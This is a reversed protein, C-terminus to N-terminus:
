SVPGLTKGEWLMPQIEFREGDDLPRRGSRMEALLDCAKRGVEISDIVIASIKRAILMERWKPGFSLLSIDGPIRLGMEGLLSMAMEAFPDFPVFIATPRDKRSCIDELWERVSEEYSYAPFIREKNPPRYIFEERLEVGGESLVERLGLKYNLAAPDSDTILTLYAIQKHGFKLFQEGAMRAIQKFNIALTPASVGEVGRHCFVVPVGQQQLQRIQYPPTAVSTVPVMAIGGVKKDMLSLIADAQRHPSNSTSRVIMENHIQNCAKEFGSMLPSYFAEGLTEPVIVAFADLGQKPVEKPIDRVFTGQGKVREIVGEQELEGLAQRITNRAVQLSNALKPESPLADGPKLRGSHLEALVFSKLQEYKPKATEAPHLLFRERSLVTM